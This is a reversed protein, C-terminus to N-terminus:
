HSMFFQVDESQTCGNTATRDTWLHDAETLWIEFGSGVSVFFDPQTKNLDIEVIQGIAHAADVLSWVNEQSKCFEVVREWPM